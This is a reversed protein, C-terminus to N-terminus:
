GDDDEDDHEGISTSTEDQEESATTFGWRALDDEDSGSENTLDVRVNDEGSEESTEEMEDDDTVNDEEKEEVEDDISIIIVDVDQVPSIYRSAAKCDDCGTITALGYHVWPLCIKKYKGGLGYELWSQFAEWHIKGVRFLPHPFYAILNEHSGSWDVDIKVKFENFSDHFPQCEYFHVACVSREIALRVLTSVLIMEDFNSSANSSNTQVSGSSSSSSTAM